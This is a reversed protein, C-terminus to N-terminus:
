RFAPCRVCCWRSRSTPCPPSDDTERIRMLVDLLKKDHGGLAIDYDQMRPAADSEPNYRYISLRM